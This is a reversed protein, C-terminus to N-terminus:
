EVQGARVHAQRPGPGGAAREAMLLDGLVQRVFQQGTGDRGAADATLLADGRDAAALGAMVAAVPAPAAVAGRDLHGVWATGTPAAALSLDIDLANPATL